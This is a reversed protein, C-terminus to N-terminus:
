LGLAGLAGGGSKEAPPGQFTVTMEGEGDTLEPLSTVFASSVQYTVGTDTEFLITVNTANRLAEDDLAASHAITCEVESPVVEQCSGYVKHGTKAKNIFGGLSIRAGPMTQLLQGDIKIKGIGTLQAM